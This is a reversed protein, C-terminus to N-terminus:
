IVINSLQPEDDKNYITQFIYKFKYDLKIEIKFCKKIHKLICKGVKLTLAYLKLDMEHKYIIISHLKVNDMMIQVIIIHACPKCM